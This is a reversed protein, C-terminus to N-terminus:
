AGPDVRRHRGHGRRHRPCDCRLPHGGRHSGPRCPRCLRDAPRPPTRGAPRDARDARPPTRARARRLRTDRAGGV